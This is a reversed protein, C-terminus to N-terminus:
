DIKRIERAMTFKNRMVISGQNRLNSCNETSATDFGGIAPSIKPRIACDGRRRGDGGKARLQERGSVRTACQTRM